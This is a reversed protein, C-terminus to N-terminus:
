TKKKRFFKNAAIGLAAARNFWAPYKSGGRHKRMSKQKKSIRRKKQKSKTMENM